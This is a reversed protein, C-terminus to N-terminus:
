VAVKQVKLSEVLAKGSETPSWVNGRDPHMWRRVLGADLLRQPSPRDTVRTTGWDGARVIRKLVITEAESLEIM